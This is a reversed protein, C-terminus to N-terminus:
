FVSHPAPVVTKGISHNKESDLSQELVIIQNKISDITSEHSKIVTNLQFYFTKM